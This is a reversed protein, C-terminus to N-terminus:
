EERLAALPDIRSARRAPIWCAGYATAALLLAIGGFSLPDTPAVGYLLDKLLRTVGLAGVLGLALGTATWRVAERTMLRVVRSPEAGLAIRIGVERTRQRALHSVVGYIGIAGLVLAVMGLVSALGAAIETPLMSINTARELSTGGVIPIDPDLEQVAARVAPLANTPDGHTKVLLSASSEHHQGIPRYLFLKPDESIGVYKSDRALGIIEIWPGEGARLRRGIATEGPWLRRALTENVIGVLPAGDRDAATFDRGQLLPIGLTRFHGRTVVNQFMSVPEGGERHYPGVSNSLTLPVIHAVTASVVGPSGELRQLLREYFDIGREQTYGANSLSISAVLVHDTVFGRDATQASTLSRVLLGAIVLLLASVALQSVVFFARLRSRGSATTAAGDKLTPAVDAKVSHLAPVLGGLLTTTLSLAAAFVAVRWDVKFELVYSVPLPSLAALIARATALAIGAAALGGASSLILSETLFQRVLQTRSAGLAIRVGTERRRSACRALQLSGINLCAILLVLGSIALLLGAFAGVPAALEPHLVRGPYVTVLARDDRAQAFGAAIVDLDAQVQGVSAGARLRGILLSSSSGARHPGNWPVWLEPLFPALTGSFSAPTVGVITFPSGDITITRGVISPDAGFRRRWFGDALMAAGAAGARDDGPGITRGLAAPIGLTGFYNGTVKMAWVLEPSGDARLNLPASQFAALAALTQNRDRYQVYDAYPVNATRNHFVRVVRDDEPVPLPRLLLANAFGFITVNAGIGIALASIAVLTFGPSKALSRVGYRLDRRLVDLHEWPAVKLFDTVTRWWLGMTMGGKGTQEAHRRQARFVQEMEGGYERQFDFPFLRLMCRYVRDPLPRKKM